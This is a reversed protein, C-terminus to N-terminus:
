NKDLSNWFNLFGNPFCCTRDKLLQKMKKKLENPNEFNFNYISYEKNLTFVTQM